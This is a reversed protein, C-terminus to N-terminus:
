GVFRMSDSLIYYKVQPKSAEPTQAGVETDPVLMFTQSFIRPQDDVSKSTIPHTATATKGHVVTGSVTM